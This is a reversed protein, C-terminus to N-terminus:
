SWGRIVAAPRGPTQCTSQLSLCNVSAVLYASASSGLCVEIVSLEDNTGVADHRIAPSIQVVVVGDIIPPVHLLYTHFYTSIAGYHQGRESMYGLVQRASHHATAGLALGACSAHLCGRYSCTVQAITHVVLKAMGYPMDNRLRNNGGPGYADHWATWIEFLEFYKTGDLRWRCAVM